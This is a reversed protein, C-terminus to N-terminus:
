DDHGEEEEEVAVRGAAIDAAKIGALAGHTYAQDLALIAPILYNLRIEEDENILARGLLDNDLCIGMLSYIREHQYVHNFRDVSDCM